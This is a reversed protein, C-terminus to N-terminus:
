ASFTCTHYIEEMQALPEDWSLHALAEERKQTFCSPNNLMTRLGDALATTSTGVALGAKRDIQPAIGCKDTLLVPVGAAVAEAAANGYSEFLSPLVLLDAAALAALKERGYQPGTMTVQDNLNRERILQRLRRAYDPELAPGTLVLRPGEIGAQDFAEVLRELNKIPSIRGIYLIIRQGDSIGYKQRFCDGEPLNGFSAVDLGNRRLVLRGDTGLGSLEDAERESTAIVRAAYRAMSATFVRHYIRKALIRGARPGFMGLPELLYPKGLRRAYCAAAPCLLNYLGFCHAVDAWLVADRLKGPRLPVKWHGRGAWHLYQIEIGDIRALPMGEPHQSHVTVVRVQHGREVLGRGL